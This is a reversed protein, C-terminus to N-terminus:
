RFRRGTNPTRQTLIERKATVVFLNYNHQDPVVVSFVEWGEKGWGNLLNQLKEREDYRTQDARVTESRYEFFRM